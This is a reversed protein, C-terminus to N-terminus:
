ATGLIRNLNGYQAPDLDRGQLAPDDPAFRHARFVSNAQGSASGGALRGSDAFLPNIYEWVIQHGSTVEIFRGTAGESEYSAIHSDVDPLGAIILLHKFRHDFICDSLIWLLLEMIAFKLQLVRM